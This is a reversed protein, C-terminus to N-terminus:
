CHGHVSCDLKFDCSGCTEEVEGTGLVVDIHAFQERLYSAETEVISVTSVDVLQSWRKQHEPEAWQVAWQEPRHLLLLMCLKEPLYAGPSTSPALTSAGAALAAEAAAEAAALASRPSSPYYAAPQQDQQQQDQQQDLAGHQAAAGHGHGSCCAHQQGQRAAGTGAALQQQVQRQQQREQEQQKEQQKEQQQQQQQQQGGAAQLAGLSDAVLHHLPTNSLESLLQSRSAHPV